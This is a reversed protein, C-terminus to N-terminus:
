GTSLWAWHTDWVAVSAQNVHVFCVASIKPVKCLYVLLPLPSLVSRGDRTAKQVVKSPMPEKSAVTQLCSQLQQLVGMLGKHQL